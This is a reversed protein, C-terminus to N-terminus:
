FLLLAALLGIVAGLTDLLVDTLTGFRGPISVQYWELTAGLAVALLVALSMRLAPSGITELTWIWLATFTAYCAVHMFKQVPEPTNVVIWVFASDGTESKGPTVSLVIILATVILTAVWRYAPAVTFDQM